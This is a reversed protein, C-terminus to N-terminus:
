NGQAGATRLYEYVEAPMPPVVVQENFWPDSYFAVYSVTLQWRVSVPTGAIGINNVVLQGLQTNGPDTLPSSCLAGVNVFNGFTIASANYIGLGAVAGGADTFYCEQLGTMTAATPMFSFSRIYVSMYLAGPYRNLLMVPSPITAPLAIPIPTVSNGPAPASLTGDFLSYPGSVHQWESGVHAEPSFPQALRIRGHPKLTHLGKQQAKHIARRVAEKADEDPDEVVTVADGHGGYGLADRGRTLHTGIRGGHHPRENEREAEPGGGPAESVIVHTDGGGLLHSLKEGLTDILDPM